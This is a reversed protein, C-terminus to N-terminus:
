TAQKGGVQDCFTAMKLDKMTLGSADHTTWTIDVRNYVNFWEPHHDVKDARLAVRSMFGFAENFDEFSFSKTIADRDSVLKWGAARLPELHQSREIDSLKAVMRLLPPAAFNRKFVIVISPSSIHVSLVSIVSPAFLVFILVFLVFLVLLVFLVFLVISLVSLVSLVFCVFQCFSFISLFKLTYLFIFIECNTLL